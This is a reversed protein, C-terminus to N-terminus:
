KKSKKTSAKAPKKAPEEVKKKEVIVVKALPKHHNPNIQKVDVIDGKKHIGNDDIYGLIVKAKM